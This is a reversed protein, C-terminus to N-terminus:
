SGPKGALFEYFVGGGRANWPETNQNLMMSHGASEFSGLPLKHLGLAPQRIVLSRAQVERLAV